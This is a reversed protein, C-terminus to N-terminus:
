VGGGGGEGRKGGWLLVPVADQARQRALRWKSRVHVNGSHRPVREARIEATGVQGRQDLLGRQASQSLREACVGHGDDSAGVKGCCKGFDLGRDRGLYPSPKRTDRDVM